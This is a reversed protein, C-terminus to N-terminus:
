RKGRNFEGLVERIDNMVIFAKPDHAKVINKLKPIQTRELVCFLVKKDKRTYMGTGDFATVGRDLQKLIIDAIEEPYDTIIYVAKAFNVGELITDIIKTSIYIVVIAYLALLFSKFAIAAFLVVIGDIVLLIQGITANQFIRSLLTAAIDTGGTTGGARFVLGIGTGMLVGGFICLLLLDTEIGTSKFDSLYKRTFDAAFPEFLDIMVSLLVTSVASKILFLRGMVKMGLIFLPVNVALIVAGVPLFGNSVHFLVTALGTAGGSAIKNPVLFIDMAIAVLASGTVILVYDRIITFIRQHRNMREEHDHESYRFSKVM